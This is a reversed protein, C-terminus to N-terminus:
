KTITIRNKKKGILVKELTVLGKKDVVITGSQLTKKTGLSVNTWMLREGPQAKFQQRRRPTMDVTADDQPAQDILGVTMEWRDARDVISETDWYLYFNIQGAADGTEPDGNGPNNDLSCHTFAPLSQNTRIAIPMVREGGAYPMTARQGHGEQGWVFLHPQRTEQLARYFEVAQPWGIAGDNKGNSFTIFGVDREPYRHLYWVDSFYDWVPTGDEFQVGWEPKGYVEEYSSKFQPSKGPVHVGVWSIAWAIREPFRLALMLSGSGGMSNGAAFTRTLDVEWETAMWDLFSLLRRQSYPRVVGKAWDDKTKLPRSTGLWEHYGTWWDYPVQNSALLIAGKEANYWWGYDNNLSGGWAHMHIGVPAPKALTSPIAVVYDFPKGPVNSTPPTEWRVYYHLTPREVHQFSQLKVSRQLVPLGPGVTEEVPAQLTNAAGVSTNEEGNLSVTVAYYAREARQPNHVYIGTGPPLPKKGDEVVYRLMKDAPKPGAGYYDANWCTLPPVEALPELGKLSTIPRTSRYIRYRVLQERELRAQTEKFEQVTMADHTIPVATEQWTLFTQGARHRASLQSVQGARAPSQGVIFSLVVVLLSVRLMLKRGESLAMPGSDIDDLIISIKM